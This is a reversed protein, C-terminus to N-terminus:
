MSYLLLLRIDLLLVLIKWGLIYTLLKKKTRRQKSKQLSWPMIDIYLLWTKTQVKLIEWNSFYKVFHKLLTTVRWDEGEIKTCWFDFEYELNLLSTKRYNNNDLLMICNKCKQCLIDEMKRRTKKALIM